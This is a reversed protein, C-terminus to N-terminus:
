TRHLPKQQRRQWCPGITKGGGPTSTRALCRVGVAVWYHHLCANNRCVDMRAGEVWVLAQCGGCACGLVAGRNGSEQRGEGNTCTLQSTTSNALAAYPNPPMAGTASVTVGTMAAGGSGTAAVSGKAVPRCDAANSCTCRPSPLTAGQLVEQVTPTGGVCSLDRYLAYYVTSGPVSVSVPLHVTFQQTTEQATM